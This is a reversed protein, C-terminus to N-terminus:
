GRNVEELIKTITTVADGVHKDGRAKLWKGVVRAAEDDDMEGLLKEAFAERGGHMEITRFSGETIGLAKPHPTYGLLEQETMPKDDAM